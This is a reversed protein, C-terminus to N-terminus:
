HRGTRISLEVGSAANDKGAADGLAPQSYYCTDLLLVQNNVIRCYLAFVPLLFLLLRRRRLGIFKCVSGHM